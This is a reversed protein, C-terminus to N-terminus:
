EKDELKEQINKAKELHMKIDSLADSAWMKIDQNKADESAEEMEDIIDEHKSVMMDIYEKDLELGAKERLKEIADKTAAGTATPLTVHLRGALEEIKKTADGHKEAMMKAFDKVDQHTAKEQVVKGLEVQMMNAEAADVLYESDEEMVENDDFKEENQEEAVEAPDNKEDKCSVVGLSLMVTAAGLLMKSFVNTKKM